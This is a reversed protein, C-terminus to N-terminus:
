LTSIAYHRPTLEEETPVPVGLTEALLKLEALAQDLRAQYTNLTSEARRARRTQEDLTAEDRADRTLKEQISAIRERAAKLIAQNSMIEVKLNPIIEKLELFRREAKEFLTEIERLERLQERLKLLDKRQALSEIKKLDEDTLSQTFGNIMNM